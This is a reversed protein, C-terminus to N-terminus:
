SEKIKMLMIEMTLLFNGNQGLQRKAQWVASLTKGLGINSEKKAQAFIKQLKDKQIIYKEDGLKKAALVDRYWMYIIDLMEPNDKYKEMEKAWMLATALDIDRLAFLRDTIDERMLGFEEDESLKIAKGISGGAYEALFFAEERLIGRNKVMYEAVQESGLPRIKFTVCRSLVTPLFLESNEALLLFVAYGPPEELTKLFVNQAAVTMKDANEIIFIKYRYRYQKIDVQKLVQERIDDAGLAKTKTPKVYFIDPNNDSDFTKCASCVGCALGIGKECELAKAFSKAILKKGSGFQGSLIYAHSVRGHFMASEFNKIIQGNGTIEDFGYM